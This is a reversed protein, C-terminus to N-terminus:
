RPTAPRPHPSRPMGSREPSQRAPLCPSRRWSSRTEDPSATGGHATGEGLQAREQQLKIQKGGIADFLRMGSGVLVPSVHLALEDVLGDAIAQQAISLGGAILVDKGAAAKKAQTVADAIGGTVFTYSTGGQKDIREGPRHTVVFVPARFSPNDGWHPYGYDFMRRGVIQAGIREFDAQWIRSDTNDEGGGMGLAARWSPLNFVWGLVAEHM